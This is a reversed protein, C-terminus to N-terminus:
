LLHVNLGKKQLWEQFVQHNGECRAAELLLAASIPRGSDLCPNTSILWSQTGAESAQNLYNVLKMVEAKHLSIADGKVSKMSYGCDRCFVASRWLTDGYGSQAAAQYDARRHVVCSNHECWPCFNIFEARRKDEAEKQKKATNVMWRVIYLISAVIVLLVITGM